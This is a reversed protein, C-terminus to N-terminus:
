WPGATKSGPGDLVEGKALDRAAAGFSELADRLDELKM